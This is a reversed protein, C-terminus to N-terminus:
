YISTIAFGASKALDRKDNHELPIYRLKDPTLEEVGCRRIDEFMLFAIYSHMDTFGDQYFRILNEEKSFNALVIQEQSSYDSASISNGKESIFCSRTLKDSPLNQLNPAGSRKDGSSLRGTDKLQHFVTHIRGTIPNIHKRWNYGYTSVEKQAAKYDLYPKLIPFKHVQPELVSSNISNKHEGKVIIKTNVGYSQLLALVQKPSDWNIDCTQIGTWMDLMGSFFEFKEDAWLRKELKIKLESSEKVKTDTKKRWKDYDLKIGCFEIYALVVVFANDLDLAKELKMLKIDSLQKRKITSLYEVDKAGYILVRDSLGTRIIEGRVSKDLTVGCYKEALTTLDRGGFQLGNTLIIEALMTDYIRTLLIDQVMLFQLDFKANQLVYLAKSVKFFEKLEKPIKGGFSQIDFLIQYDFTGIQLLLIQKTYCDLGTTETDLSLEEEKELIHVAETVSIQEYLSQDYMSIQNTVLYIM